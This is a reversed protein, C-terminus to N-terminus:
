RGNGLSEGTGVRGYKEPSCSGGLDRLKQESLLFGM